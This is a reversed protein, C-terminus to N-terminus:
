FALGHQCLILALALRYYSSSRVLIRQELMACKFLTVLQEAGLLSLVTSLPYDLLPLEQPGTLLVCFQIVLDLNSVKM